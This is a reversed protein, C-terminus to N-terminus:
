MKATQARGVSAAKFESIKEPTLSKICDVLASAFPRLNEKFESLNDLYMYPSYLLDRFISIFAVIGGTTCIFHDNGKKWEVSLSDAIMRLFMSILDACKEISIEVDNSYFPDGEGNLFKNRQISKCVTELGIHASPNAVMDKPIKIMKKLPGNENM